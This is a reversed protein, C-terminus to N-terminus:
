GAEWQQGLNRLRGAGHGPRSKLGFGGGAGQGQANVFARVSRTSTALCSAIAAFIGQEAASEPRVGLFGEVVSRCSNTLLGSSLVTDGV